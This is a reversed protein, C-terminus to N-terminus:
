FVVRGLLVIEGKFRRGSAPEGMLDSKNVAVDFLISNYDLTLIYIPEGSLENCEERYDVIDGIVLYRDSSMGRPMFCSDVLTYLDEKAIRTNVSQYQLYDEKALQEAAEKNGSQAAVIMMQHRRMKNLRKIPYDEERKIGLIVTGQTCLASISVSKFFHEYPNKENLLDIVNIMRFILSIGIRPDEMECLFGNGDFVQEFSVPCRFQTRDSECYPLYGESEEMQNDEIWYGIVGVGPAFQKKYHVHINNFRDIHQKVEDAEERVYDLMQRVQRNGEMRRFGVARLYENM